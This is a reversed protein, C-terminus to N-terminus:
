PPRPAANSGDNGNRSGVLRTVVAVLRKPPIPKELFADAGALLAHAHTADMLRATTLVVPLGPAVRRASALLDLGSMHPLDLDTLVLDWHEDAIRQVAVVPDTVHAVDFGAREGLVYGVFRAAAPDDEVVLIRGVSVAATSDMGAAQQALTAATHETRNSAPQLYQWAHM